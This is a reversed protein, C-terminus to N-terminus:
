FEFLVNTIVWGHMLSFPKVSILLKRQKCHQCMKFARYKGKFSKITVKFSTITTAKISKISQLMYNNGFCTWTVQLVLQCSTLHHLWALIVKKNVEKKRKGPLNRSPNQWCLQFTFLKIDTIAIQRRLWDFTDTTTMSHISLQQLDEGM